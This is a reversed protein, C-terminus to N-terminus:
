PTWFTQYTTWGTGDQHNFHVEGRTIDQDLPDCSSGDWLNEAVVVGSTSWNFQFTFNNFCGSREQILFGCPNSTWKVRSYDGSESAEWHYHSTCSNATEAVDASIIDAPAPSASTAAPVTAASAPVAVAATM